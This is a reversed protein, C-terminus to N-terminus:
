PKPGSSSRMNYLEGEEFLWLPAAVTVYLWWCIAEFGSIYKPAWHGEINYNPDSADSFYIWAFRTIAIIFIVRFTHFPFTKAVVPDSPPTPKKCRQQRPEPEDDIVNLTETLFYCLSIVLTLALPVRWYCEKLMIDLEKFENM